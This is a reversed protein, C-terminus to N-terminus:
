IKCQVRAAITPVGEPFYQIKVVSGGERRRAGRSRYGDRRSSRSPPRIRHWPRSVARILGCKEFQTACRTASDPLLQKALVVQASNSLRGSASPTYRLVSRTQVPRLDTRPPPTRRRRASTRRPRGATPRRPGFTQTQNAPKRSAKAVRAVRPKTSCVTAVSTPCRTNPM